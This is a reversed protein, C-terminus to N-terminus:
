PSPKLRLVSRTVRGIAEESWAIAFGQGRQWLALQDTYHNSLPNGSQGGALVFSNEEWNGVDIVMRLNAVQTPRATPDTVSRGTQAITQGDGGWPFPGHNFIRDLPRRIGLPHVLTLPRVEGWAWQKPSPGAKMKLTVIAQALGAAIETQWSPQFWGDPQERILSVLLSLQRIGFMSAPLLIHFGRGTAWEYSRPAKARAMRCLMEAVFFEYVTAGVSDLAVIGDWAQLIKLAEQGEATEVPTTLVVERMERWPISLEDLQLAQVAPLDWDHRSGLREVIRAYRYGDVWDIGLYPGDNDATPKNNATAVFGQEPNLCHPMEDAPIPRAAWQLEPDWGPLPVTGWGKKRQPVDGVLQWGITTSSDAYVMNLSAPCAAVARQFSAFTTVRHARLLGKISKPSMWTTRMSMAETPGDLVTSIIPGRPTVLIEEEVPDRDKVMITERRIECPLFRDGERASCGDDGIEELYLDINDALGATVGWAAAENHGAPFFPVGIFSAGTVAWEPTRLHALYWPPPISPALHPDNALIARGTATRSANLAWNNSGGGLGLPEVLAALDEGLRDPGPGCPRDISQTVPIWDAYINDLAQLAAPGDHQLLLLRTIKATWASLGFSVYNLSALVDAVEYPTPAARLLAFEHALGHCGATAGQNIGDAFASIIRVSEPELVEVHGRAARHFGIRRSLQDLPLAAQGVLDALTGRTVRLLM